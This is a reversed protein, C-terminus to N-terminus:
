FFAYGDEQELRKVEAAGWPVPEIFPPLDGAQIQNGGMWRQCVKIDIVRFADLRAALDVLQKNERYNSRVFSLIEEGHLIVAIPESTSYQTEGNVLKEAKILLEKLEEATHLILQTQFKTPLVPAAPTEVTAAVAVQAVPKVEAKDQTAIHIEAQTSLSVLAAICGGLIFCIQKAM